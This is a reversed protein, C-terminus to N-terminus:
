SRDVASSGLIGTPRVLIVGILIAFAFAVSYGGSIELWPCLYARAGVEVLGMIVGGLFAGRLNGIGGLVAASFAIVGPYVGMRFGIQSGIYLGYSVGAVAAMAAGLVFTFSIVRNVDIGMLAAAGKDLSCARMAKGITTRQVTWDLLLMLALTISWIFVFKGPIFVAGAGDRGGLIARQFFHEEGSPALAPFARPESGWVLMALNQLFLSVGVATILAALRPAQRMPRYALYEILLGLLGCGLVALALGAWFPLGLSSIAVVGLFAGIMYVEGHAFNVLKVIGYVLTYGVAILAYIGGLLLANLLQNLFFDM